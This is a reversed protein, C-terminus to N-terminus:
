HLAWLLTPNSDIIHVLEARLVARKSDNAAFAFLIEVNTNM